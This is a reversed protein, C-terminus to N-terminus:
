AEQERNQEDLQAADDEELGLHRQQHPSSPRGRTL